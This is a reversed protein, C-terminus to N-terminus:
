TPGELNYMQISKKRQAKRKGRGDPTKIKNRHLAVPGMAAPATNLAGLQSFCHHPASVDMRPGVGLGQARSHHKM